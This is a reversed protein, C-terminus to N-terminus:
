IIEYGFKEYTKIKLWRQIEANKRDGWCKILEKNIKFAYHYEGCGMLPHTDGVIVIKENKVLKTM